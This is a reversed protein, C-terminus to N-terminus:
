KLYEDIGLWFDVGIWLLGVNGNKALIKRGTYNSLMIFVAFLTLPKERRLASNIEFSISIPHNPKLNTRIGYEVSWVPGM